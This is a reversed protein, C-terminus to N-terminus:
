QNLYSPYIVLWYYTMAAVILATGVCFIVMSARDLASSSTPLQVLKDSTTEALKIGFSAAAKKLNDIAISPPVDFWEGACRHKDLLRHAEYEIMRPDTDTILTYELKLPYASGTQLAALRLEPDTSYGIKCLGNAASIVYVCTGGSAAVISSFRM